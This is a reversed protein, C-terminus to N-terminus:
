LSIKDVFRVWKIDKKGLIETQASKPVEQDTEIVMLADKGRALRFVKMFAINIDYRALVESVAQIVGPKDRHVTLLSPYDGSLEVPFDDIQNVLVRGGGVSAGKITITEQSGTLEFVVTNPHVSKDLEPDFFEIEMGNTLELSNPIGEDDPKFGILGAVLAKDTGHGKGTDRFSGHLGIRAKLPKEGLITRALMGLRTAGATHSSSPGIMVPGIIDFINIQSFNNAGGQSM